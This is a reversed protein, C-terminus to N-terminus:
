DGLGTQSRLSLDVAQQRRRTQVVESRPGWIWFRPRGKLLDKRPNDINLTLAIAILLLLFGERRAVLSRSPVAAGGPMQNVMGTDLKVAM